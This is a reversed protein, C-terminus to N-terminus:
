SSNMHHNICELKEHLTCSRLWLQWERGNNKNTWGNRWEQNVTGFKSIEWFSATFAFHKMDELHPKRYAICSLKNTIIVKLPIHIVQKTLGHCNIKQCNQMVSSRSIYVFKYMNTSIRVSGESDTSTADASLEFQGHPLCCWVTAKECQLLLITAWWHDNPLSLSMTLSPFPNALLSNLQLKHSDEHSCVKYIWICLYKTTVKTRCWIDDHYKAEIICLKFSLEQLETYSLHM